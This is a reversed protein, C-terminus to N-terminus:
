LISRYHARTLNILFNEALFAKISESNTQPQLSISFSVSIWFIKIGRAACPFTYWVGPPFCGATVISIGLLDLRLYIDHVAHSHNSVMHFFTSLAFCLAGGLFFLAFIIWDDRDAQPYASKAYPYFYMPLIIMWVMALFHSYISGTENHVYFCSRFCDWYSNSLPRFGNLIFENDKAWAPLQSGTLFYTKRTGAEVPKINTSLAGNVNTAAPRRERVQSGM